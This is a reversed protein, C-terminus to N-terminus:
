FTTWLLSCYLENHHSQYRYVKRTLPKRRLPTQLNNFQAFNTSLQRFSAPRHSARFYFSIFSWLVCKSISFASFRKAKWEALLYFKPFSFMICLHFVSSHFGYFWRFVYAHLQFHEEMFISSSHKCTVFNDHVTLFKFNLELLITFGLIFSKFPFYHFKSFGDDQWSIQWTFHYRIGNHFTLLKCHLESLITVVWFSFKSLLIDFNSLLMARDISKGHLISHLVM